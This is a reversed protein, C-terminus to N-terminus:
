DDGDAADSRTGTQAKMNQAVRYDHISDDYRYMELELPDPEENLRRKFFRNFFLIMGSGLGLSYPIQLLLPHVVERGTIIAYLKQHVTAMSVDAHFNM